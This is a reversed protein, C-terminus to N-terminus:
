LPPPGLFIAFGGGIQEAPGATPDRLAVIKGEFGIKQLIASIKLALEPPKEPNAVAVMVGTQELGTPAQITEYTPVGARLFATTFQRVFGQTEVIQARAIVVKQPLNPKLKIIEDIFFKTQASSGLSGYTATVHAPESARNPSATAAKSHRERELTERAAQLERDKEALQTQLQLVKPDPSPNATNTAQINKAAGIYILAAGIMAAILAVFLFGVGINALMEARIQLRRCLKVTAYFVIPCAAIAVMVTITEPSLADWYVILALLILDSVFSAVSVFLKWELLKSVGEFGLAFVVTGTVFWRVAGGFTKPLEIDM